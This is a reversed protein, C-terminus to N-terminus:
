MRSLRDRRRWSRGQSSVYSSKFRTGQKPEKNDITRQVEGDDGFMCVGDDHHPCAYGGGRRHLDRIASSAETSVAGQRRCPPHARM